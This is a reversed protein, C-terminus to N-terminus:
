SAANEEQLQGILAQTVRSQFGPFEAIETWAMESTRGETILAKHCVQILQRLKADLEEDFPPSVRDENDATDIWIRHVPITEEILRLLTELNEQENSPITSILAQFLPLKRDIRYGLVDGTGTKTIWPHSHDVQHTQRRSQGGRHAYVDKAIDRVTKALGSLWDRLAPPAAATSKKIDIQWEQDMSNPIDVRLRALKYHEEKKWGNRGPGLGLWDGPIILRRNRYLYFGQHANWGAPGSAAKHLKASNVKDNDDFKDRHPLIFGKVSVKSKLSSNSDMPQPQTSNHDECFPDWPIIPTDNLYITIRKAPPDTLYRHFVMALHDGVKAVESVFHEEQTEIDTDAELSIVRDPVELLVTTGCKLDLEELHNARTGTAPHTSRLLQWGNIEPRALHDLDWRRITRKSDAAKSVVTLRRAQSFSATKLGLGFRGLDDPDREEVPSKSGLRMANVLQTESMGEGDDTISIWSDIGEWAFRLWVNKCKATISNDIIDAIATALTYGHARLSEIMASADPAVDDFEPTNTTTV